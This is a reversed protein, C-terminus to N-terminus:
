TSAERAHLHIDGVSVVKREIDLGEKYSKLAKCYEEREFYFNGLRNLLM